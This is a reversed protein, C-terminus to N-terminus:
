PRSRLSVNDSCYKLLYEKVTITDVPVIEGDKLETLIVHEDMRITERPAACLSLLLAIVLLIYRM